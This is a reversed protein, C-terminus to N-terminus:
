TNERALAVVSQMASERNAASNANNADMLARRYFVCQSRVSNPTEVDDAVASLSNVAGGAEAASVGGTKATLVQELFRKPKNPISL